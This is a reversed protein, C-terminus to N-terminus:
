AALLLSRLSDHGRQIEVGVGVLDGLAHCASARQEHRAQAGLPAPRAAIIPLTEVLKGIGMRIDAERPDVNFVLRVPEVIEIHFVERGDQDLVVNCRSKEAGNQRLRRDNCSHQRIQACQRAHGARWFYPRRQDGSLGREPL